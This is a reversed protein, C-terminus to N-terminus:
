NFITVIQTIIYNNQYKLFNYSKLLSSITSLAFTVLSSLAGKNLYLALRISSVPFSPVFFPTFIATGNFYKLFKQLDNSIGNILQLISSEM